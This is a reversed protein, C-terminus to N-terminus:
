RRERDPEGFLAPQDPAPEPRKELEALEIRFDDLNRFDYYESAYRIYAVPDVARLRVALRRGIEVSQVEREFDQHVSDEVARVLELKIEESIPRKGCAAQLGRLVSQADFPVRSGDKKVVMLRATKEIREYSTYRRGCKNCERRRRIAGGADSTRSDSA